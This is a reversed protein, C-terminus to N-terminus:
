PIDDDARLRPPGLVKYRLASLWKQLPTTIPWGHRDRRELLREAYAMLGITDRSLSLLQEHFAVCDDFQWLWETGAAKQSAEFILDLDQKITAMRYYVITLRQTLRPHLTGIRHANSTYVADYGNAIRDRFFAPARSVRMRRIHQELREVFNRTQLLNVVGGLEGALRLSKVDRRHHARSAIFGGTIALVAGLITEWM